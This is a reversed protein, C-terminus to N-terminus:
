KRRELERYITRLRARASCLRQRVAAPKIELLEALETARYGEFVSLTFVTKEHPPLLAIAEQVMPVSLDDEIPTEQASEATNKAKRFHDICIRKATRYLWARCQTPGLDDLDAQHSLARVFAEQVIDEASARDGVMAAIYRTLEECHKEDLTEVM